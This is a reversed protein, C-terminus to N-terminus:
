DGVIKCKLYQDNVNHKSGCSCDRKLEPYDIFLQKLFVEATNKYYTSDAVIKDNEASYSDQATKVTAGYKTVTVQATRLARSYIFYGTIKRLADLVDADMDEIDDTKIKSLITADLDNMDLALAENKTASFLQDTPSFPRINQDIYEKTIFVPDM